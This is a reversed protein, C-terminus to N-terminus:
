SEKKKWHKMGYSDLVIFLTLKPCDDVEWKTLPTKLFGWNIWVHELNPFDKLVLEGGEIKKLPNKSNIKIEKVQKKVEKNPYKQNLYEQLTTM